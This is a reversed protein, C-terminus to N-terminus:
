EETLKFKNKEILHNITSLLRSKVGNKACGGIAYVNPVRTTENFEKTVIYGESDLTLIRKLFGANEPIRGLSMVLAMCKISSYTDLQVEVLDGEKNNKCSIINCNPM